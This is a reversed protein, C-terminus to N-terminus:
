ITTLQHAYSNWFATIEYALFHIPTKYKNVSPQKEWLQYKVKLVLPVNIKVRTILLAKLWKRNRLTPRGLYISKRTVICLISVMACFGCSSKQYEWQWITFTCNTRLLALPCRKQSVYFIATSKANSPVWFTFKNIKSVIYILAFRDLM